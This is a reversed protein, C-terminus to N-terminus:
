TNGHLNRYFYVYYFSKGFYIIARSNLDTRWALTVSDSTKAVIGVGYPRWPDLWNQASADGGTAEMKRTALSSVDFAPAEPVSAEDAPAVPAGEIASAEVSTDAAALDADSASPSLVIERTTAAAAAKVPTAAKTAAPVAAKATQAVPAAALTATPVTHACGLASTLALASLVSPLTLRMPPITEKISGDYM